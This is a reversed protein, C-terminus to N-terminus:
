VMHIMTVTDVVSRCVPCEKIHKACLRCCMGHGCPLLICQIPADMCIKCEYLKTLCTDNTKLLERGYLRECEEEAIALRRRLNDVEVQLRRLEKRYEDVRRGMCCTIDM